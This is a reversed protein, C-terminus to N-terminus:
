RPCAPPGYKSGDDSPALTNGGYGEVDQILSQKADNFHFGEVPRINYGRESGFDKFVNYQVVIKSKGLQKLRVKLPEYFIADYCYGGGAQVYVIVPPRNAADRQADGGWPTEGDATWGMEVSRVEVKNTWTRDVAFSIFVLSIAVAMPTWAVRDLFLVITCPVFFFAVIAILGIATGADGAWHWIQLVYLSYAFVIVLPLSFAAAQRPWKWFFACATLLISCPFYGFSPAAFTMLLVLVLGAILYYTCCVAKFAPSMWWNSKPEEVM